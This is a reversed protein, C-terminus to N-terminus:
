ESEGQLLMESKLVFGGNAVVQDGDKLGSLIEVFGNTRLGPEVDIRRFTHDNEPSFVFSKRDHELIASEPIALSKRPDSVPIAVRVFMGPRLRGDPNEIVAVLPVANTAVDVERGAFHVIAERNEIGELTTMVRVKDGPQLQLARWERQRLDASVWLRTTDALTMLPEGAEVRENQSFNYREITGAFPAKLQVLSLQDEPIDTEGSPGDNNNSTQVATNGLLTRVNQLSVRLRREADKVSIEAKRCSQGALFAQEEMSATLVAEFQDRNSNREDLTRTSIVGNRQNEEAAELQTEALLLDSYASLLTERSKGLTVNEFDKRIKSVADRRRIAESLKQLGDCTAKEWDRAEIALKLESQRLLADARANGVEPSSLEVLVDGAKVSQGPKVLLRTIIGNTASRLVIHQRDDYQLRGPVVHEHILETTAASALQLQAAAVKETPLDLVDTVTAEETTADTENAAASDGPAPQQWKWWAGAAAGGVVLIGAAIRFWGANKM